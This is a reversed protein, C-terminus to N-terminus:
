EDSQRRDGKRDCKGRSRFCDTMPRQYRRDIRRRPEETEGAASGDARRHWPHVPLPRLHSVPFRGTDTQVWRQGHYHSDQPPYKITVRHGYITEWVEGPVPEGEFIHPQVWVRTYDHYSEEDHRVTIGPMVGAMRGVFGDGM